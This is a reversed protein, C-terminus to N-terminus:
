VRECQVETCRYRQVAPAVRRREPLLGQSGRVWCYVFGQYDIACSATTGLSLTMWLPSAGISVRTPTVRRLTGGDGLQGNTNAGFCYLKTNSHIGTPAPPLWQVHTIPPQHPAYVAAKHGDIGGVALTTTALLSTSGGGMLTSTQPRSGSHPRATALSVTMM